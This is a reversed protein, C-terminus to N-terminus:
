ESPIEFILRNESEQILKLEQKFITDIILKLALPDMIIADEILESEELSFYSTTRSLRVQSVSDKYIVAEVVLAPNASSLDVEIIEECSSLILFITIATILYRDINM